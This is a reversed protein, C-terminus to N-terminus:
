VSMKARGTNRHLHPFTVHAHVPTKNRLVTHEHCRRDDRLKDDNVHIRGYTMLYCGESSTLLINNHSM